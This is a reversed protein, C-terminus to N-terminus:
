KGGGAAAPAPEAEAEAAAAAEAAKKAAREEQRKLLAARREQPTLLSRKNSYVHAMWEEETMGARVDLAIRTSLEDEPVHEKKARPKKVSVESGEKPSIAEGLWKVKGPMYFWPSGIIHSWGPLEEGLRGHWAMAKKQDGAAVAEMIGIHKKCLDSGEAAKNACCSPRYVVPTFGPICGGNMRAQCLHDLTEPDPFEEPDPRPAAM